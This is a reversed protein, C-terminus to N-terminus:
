RVDLYLDGCFNVGILFKIYNSATHTHYEYIYLIAINKNKKKIRNFRFETVIAGIHKFKAFLYSKM